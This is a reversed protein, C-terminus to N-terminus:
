RNATRPTPIQLAEALSETTVPRSLYTKAGAERARAEAELDGPPGLAVLSSKGLLRHLHSLLLEGGLTLETAVIAEHFIKHRMREFVQEVSTAPYVHIALPMLCRVLHRADGITVEAALIVRRSREDM